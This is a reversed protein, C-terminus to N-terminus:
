AVVAVAVAVGVGHIGNGDASDRFAISRWVVRFRTCGGHSHRVAASRGAIAGNDRDVQVVAAGVPVATGRSSRRQSRPEESQSEAGVRLQCPAVHLMNDHATRSCLENRRIIPVPLQVLYACAYRRRPFWPLPPIPRSGDRPLFTFLFSSLM